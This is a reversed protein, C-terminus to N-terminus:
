IGVFGHRVAGAGRVLALERGEGAHRVEDGAVIGGALGDDAVGAWPVPRDEGVVLHREVDGVRGGLERGAEVIVPVDGGVIREEGGAVEAEDVRVAGDAADDVEGRAVLADHVARLAEVVTDDELAGDLHDEVRALRAGHVAPIDGDLPRGLM